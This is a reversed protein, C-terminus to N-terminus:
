SNRQTRRHGRRHSKAALPDPQANLTGSPRLSTPAVGFPQRRVPPPVLPHLRQTRCVGAAGLDRDHPLASQRPLARGPRGPHLGCHIHFHCRRGALHRHLTRRDIGMARAVEDASCRGTPLLVEVLERVRASATGTPAALSNLAETSGGGSPPPSANAADLDRAYMVLGTFDHGFKLRSGLLRTHTDLDAPAPHSFCVALPTWTPGLFDRMIGYLAAVALEEAQRSPAPEGLEFWLRVTALGNGESLRIRLAENYSHEYRM